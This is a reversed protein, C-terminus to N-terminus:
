LDVDGIISPDVIPPNFKGDPQPLILPAGPLIAYARQTAPDVPDGDFITAARASGLALTVLAIACLGTVAAGAGPSEVARPRRGARRVGPGHRRRPQLEGSADAGRAHLVALRHARRETCPERRRAPRPRRRFRTSRRRAPEVAGGAGSGRDSLPR